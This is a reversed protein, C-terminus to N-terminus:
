IDEKSALTLKTKLFHFTTQIEKETVRLIIINSRDSEIVSNILHINDVILAM